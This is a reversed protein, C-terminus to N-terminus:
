PCFVTAEERFITIEFASQAAAASSFCCATSFAVKSLAIEQMQSQFDGM